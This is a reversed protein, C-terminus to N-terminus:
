VLNPNSTTVESESKVALENLVSFSRIFSDLVAHPFKLVFKEGQRGCCRPEFSPRDARVCVCVHMHTVRQSTCARRAM